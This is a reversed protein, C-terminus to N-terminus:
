RRRRGRTTMRRSQSSRLQKTRKPVQLIIFPRILHAFSSVLLIVPTVSLLASCFIYNQSIFAFLRPIFMAHLFNSLYISTGVAM